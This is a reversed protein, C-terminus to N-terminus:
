GGFGKPRRVRDDRLIGVACSRLSGGKIAQSFSYNSRFASCQLCLSSSGTRPGSPQGDDLMQRCRRAMRYGYGIAGASYGKEVRGHLGRHTKKAPDKLFLANMTDKLGVHLESIEGEALTVRSVRAFQLHTYLTTSAASMCRALRSVMATQWVAASFALSGTCHVIFSAWPFHIIRM